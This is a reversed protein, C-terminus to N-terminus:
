RRLRRIPDRGAPVGCAAGVPFQSGFPPNWRAGRPKVWGVNPTKKMTELHFTLQVIAMAAALQVRPDEDNNMRERLAPLADLNGIAGLAHAALPRIRMVQVEPPDKRDGKRPKNFGLARRAVAYGVDLGLYGLGKAAALKTELHTANELRLRFLDELSPDRAEALALLAFTQQAGDGSYADFKLQQLAEESGLLAMSEMAQLRLGEDGFMMARALLPIAGEEGLRGLLMATNRRVEPNEHELLFDALRQSHQSNGMRHLAFIAAAQVSPDPDTLLSEIRPLSVRDHLVGLAACAAFRVGPHEDSLATRIWPLGREPAVKQLAEVAQARVTALAEYHTGQKLALMARDRLTKCEQRSLPSSCGSCLLLAGCLHLIPLAWWVAVCRLNHRAVRLNM